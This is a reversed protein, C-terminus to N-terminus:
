VCEKQLRESLWAAVTKPDFRLSSGIRFCALRGSKVERSITAKSVSLFRELDRSTLCRDLKELQEVLDPM